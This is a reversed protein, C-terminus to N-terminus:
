DMEDDDAAGHANTRDAGAQLRESDGSLVHRDRLRVMKLSVNVAARYFYGKPNKTLDPAAQRRLLRLFITQVVDEADEPTRTISDATRYVLDYYEEFIGGFEQLSPKQMLELVTVTSMREEDSLDRPLDNMLLIRFILHGPLRM